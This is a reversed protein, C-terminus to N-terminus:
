ILDNSLASCAHFPSVIARIFAILKQTVAAEVFLSLAPPRLGTRKMALPAFTMNVLLKYCCTPKIQTIASLTCNIVQKISLAVFRVWQQGPLNELRVIYQDVKGALIYGYVRLQRHIARHGKRSLLQWQPQTICHCYLPLCHCFCYYVNCWIGSWVALVAIVSICLLYLTQLYECLSWHISRLRKYDTTM